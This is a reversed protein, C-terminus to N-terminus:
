NILGLQRAWRTPMWIELDAGLAAHITIRSGRASFINGTEPTDRNVNVPGRPQYVQRPIRETRMPAPVMIHAGQPLSESPPIFAPIMEGTNVVREDWVTIYNGSGGIHFGANTTMSNNQIIFNERSRNNLVITQRPSLTIRHLPQEAAATTRLRSGQWNAPFAVSITNGTQPAVILREQINIAHYGIPSIGYDLVVNRSGSANNTLIWDYLPVASSIRTADNEILIFHHYLRDINEIQLAEGYSLAHRVLAPAATEEFGLQEALLARPFILTVADNPNTIHLKHHEGLIIARQASFRGFNEIEDTETNFRIFDLSANEDESAPMIRLDEGIKNEIIVSSGEALIHRILATENSFRYSITDADPIGIALASPADTTTIFVTTNAPLEFTFTEQTIDEHVAFTYIDQNNLVMDFGFGISNDTCSIRIQHTRLPDYNTIVITQGSRLPQYVPTLQGEALGVEGRLMHPMLLYGDMLPTIIVAGNAALQFTNSEQTGQSTVHGDRGRIVFDFAFTSSDFLPDFRLTLATNTTNSLQYPEGISLAIASVAPHPVRNVSFTTGLLTAPFYLTLSADVATLHLRGGGPISFIQLRADQDVATTNGIRNFIAYDVNASQNTRVQAAGGHNNIVELTQGADINVTHLAQGSAYSFTIRTTDFSVNMQATPSIITTGTGSVNFRGSAFGFRTIEGRQDTAVIEYRTTGTVNIHSIVRADRGEFTYVNGPRLTRTVTAAETITPLFVITTLLLGIIVLMGQFAKM